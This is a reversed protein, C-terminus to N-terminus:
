PVAYVDSVFFTKDLVDDDGLFDFFQLMRKSIQVVPVHAGEIQVKLHSKGNDLCILISDEPLMEVERECFSCTIKETEM